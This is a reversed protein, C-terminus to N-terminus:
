QNTSVKPQKSKRAILFLTATSMQICTSAHHEQPSSTHLANEEPYTTEESPGGGEQEVLLKETGSVPGSLAEPGDRTSAGSFPHPRSDTRPQTDQQTVLHPEGHENESTSPLVLFGRAARNGVKRQFLNSESLIASSTQM